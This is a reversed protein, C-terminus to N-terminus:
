AALSARYAAEFRVANLVEAAKVNFLRGVLAADKGNAEYQRALVFTTIGTSEVVPKGFGLTPDIIVGPSIRWRAALKTESYEIHRLHKRFERFVGNKTVVGCLETSHIERGASRIISMGDTYLDAHAFPHEVGLDRKLVAYAKRIILPKVGESKFLSAVYAEILNVFSVAYDGGNPRYDSHFFPGRGKKDSRWKFWSRVTSASLGTYRAVDSVAYVGGGLMLDVKIFGSVAYRHGAPKDVIGWVVTSSSAEWCSAAAGVGADWGTERM